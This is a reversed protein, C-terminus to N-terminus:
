KILIALLSHLLDPLDHFYIVNHCEPNFSRKLIDDPLHIRYKIKIEAM